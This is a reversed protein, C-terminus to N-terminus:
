PIQKYSEWFERTEGVGDGVVVLACHASIYRETGVIDFGGCGRLSM